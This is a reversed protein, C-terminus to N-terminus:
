LDKKTEESHEATQQRDCNNCEASGESKNHASSPPKAPCTPYLISDMYTVWREPLMRFILPQIFKLYIALLVPLFICPLCVMAERGSAFLLASFEASEVRSYM